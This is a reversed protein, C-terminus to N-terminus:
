EGCLGPELETLLVPVVEHPHLVVVMGVKGDFDHVDDSLVEVLIEDCCLVLNGAHVDEAAFFNLLGDQASIVVYDQGFLYMVHKLLLSLWVVPVVGVVVVLVVVVLVVVVFIRCLVVSAGGCGVVLRVLLVVVLLCRWVCGWLSASINLVM